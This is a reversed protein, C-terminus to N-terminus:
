DINLVYLICYFLCIMIRFVVMITGAIVLMKEDNLDKCVPLHEDTVPFFLVAGYINWAISFITIGIIGISERGIMALFMVLVFMSVLLWISLDRNCDDNLFNVVLALILMALSISKTVLIFWSTVAFFITEDLMLLKNLFSDCANPM